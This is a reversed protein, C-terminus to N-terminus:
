SSRTGSQVLTVYDDINGGTVVVNDCRLWAHAEIINSANVRVGLNLQSPIQERTLWRKAALAQVLCDSRWPVRAAASQIAWSIRTARALQLPQPTPTHTDSPTATLSEMSFTLLAVRALSLEIIAILLLYWDAATLQLARQLLRPTRALSTPLSSHDPM